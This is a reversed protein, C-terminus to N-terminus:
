QDNTGGPVIEIKGNELVLEITSRRDIGAIKMIAPPIRMYLTGGVHTLSTEVSIKGLM